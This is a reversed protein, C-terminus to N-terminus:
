SAVLMWNFVQRRLFLKLCFRSPNRLFARVPKPTHAHFLDQNLLNAYGFIISKSGPRNYWM